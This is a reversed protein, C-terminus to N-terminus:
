PHVATLRLNANCPEGRTHQQKNGVPTGSLNNKRFPNPRKKNRKAKMRNVETKVRKIDDVTIQRWDNTPKTYYPYRAEDRSKAAFFTLTYVSMHDKAHACRGGREVKVLRLGEAEAIAEPIYKRSLGWNVIQGYTKALNGNERGGHSLHEDILCEIFRICHLSRARWAPSRNLDRTIWAWPEGEPPGSVQKFNGIPKNAMVDPDLWWRPTQRGM